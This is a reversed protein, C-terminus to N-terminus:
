GAVSLRFARLEELPRGPHVRLREAVLISRLAEAAAQPNGDHSVIAHDFRDLLAIEDRAAGLRIALKAEDETRRGRLRGELAALSPPALFVLVASPVRAKVTLAGQVDVRLLADRGAALREAIPQRPIGYCYDYVTAHEILADETLLRHYVADDVFHYDKGPVEGARPARTTYTVIRVVDHGSQELLGVVTDKGVGSPGSLVALVPSQGIAAIRRDVDSM